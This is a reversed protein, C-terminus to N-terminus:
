QAGFVAAGTGNPDVSIIQGTVYWTFLTGDTTLPTGIYTFTVWSGEVGGGDAIDADLNIQDDTTTDHNPTIYVANTQDNAAATTGFNATALGTAPIRIYQVAGVIKDTAAGCRIVHGGAATSKGGILFTYFDGVDPVATTTPLTVTVAGNTLDGGIIHVANKTLGTAAVAEADGGGSDLNVFGSIRITNNGLMIQQAQLNQFNGDKLCGVEAM